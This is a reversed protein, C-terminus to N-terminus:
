VSERECKQEDYRFRYLRAAEIGRIRCRRERERERVKRERDGPLYTSLWCSTPRLKPPNVSDWIRVPTLPDPRERTLRTFISRTAPPYDAKVARSPSMSPGRGGCLLFIRVIPRLPHFHVWCEGCVVASSGGPPHAFARACVAEFLWFAFNWWCVNECENAQNRNRDGERM